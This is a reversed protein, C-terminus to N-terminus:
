DAPTVAGRDCFAGPEQPLSRAATTDIIRLQSTKLPALRQPFGPYVVLTVQRGATLRQSLEEAVCRVRSLRDFLTLRRLCSCRLVLRSVAEVSVLEDFRDARGIELAELRSPVMFDLVSDSVAPVGAVSLTRLEPLKALRRLGEETLSRCFSVDLSCLRPALRRLRQLTTDTVAPAGSRAVNLHRLTPLGDPPLWEELPYDTISAATLRELRVCGTLGAALEAPRVRAMESLDLERLNACTALSRLSEQDIVASARLSLRELRRCSTLVRRLSAAPLFGVKELELRRLHECRSVVGTVEFDTFSNRVTGTIHLGELSAPVQSFRQATCNEEWYIPPAILTLRRLQPQHSLMVELCAASCSRNMTVVQLRPCFLCLRHLADVTVRFSRLDIEALQRCHRSVVDLDLKESGSVSDNNDINITRLSRM